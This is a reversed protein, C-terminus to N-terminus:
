DIINISIEASMNSMPTLISSVSTPVVVVAQSSSSASSLGTSSSFTQQAATKIVQQLNGQGQEERKRKGTSPPTSIALNSSVFKAFRGDRVRASLYDIISTRDKASYYKLGESIVSKVYEGCHEITTFEEPPNNAMERALILAFRHWNIGHADLAKALHRDPLELITAKIREVRQRFKSTVINYKLIKTKDEADIQPDAEIAALARKAIKEDSYALLVRVKHPERANSRFVEYNNRSLLNRQFDRDIVLDLVDSMAFSNGTRLIASFVSNSFHLPMAQRTDLDAIKILDLADEMRGLEILTQLAQFDRAHIMAIKTTQDAENLMKFAFTERGCIIAHRFAKCDQELLAAAKDAPALADFQQNADIFKRAEIADIFEQVKM